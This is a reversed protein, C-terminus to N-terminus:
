DWVRQSDANGEDKRGVAPPEEAGQGAELGGRGALPLLLHTPKVSNACCIDSNM